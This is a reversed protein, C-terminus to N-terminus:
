VGRLTMTFLMGTFFAATYLGITALRTALSM